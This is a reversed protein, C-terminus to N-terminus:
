FDIVQDLEQFCERKFVRFGSGLGSTHLLHHLLLETPRGELATTIFISSGVLATVPTKFKAHVTMVM